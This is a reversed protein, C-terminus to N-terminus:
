SKKKKVLKLLDSRRVVIAKQLLELEVRATDDRVNIITAKCFYCGEADLFDVIDGKVLNFDQEYEDKVPLFANMLNKFLAPDMPQVSVLNKAMNEPKFTEPIEFIPFGMKNLKFM